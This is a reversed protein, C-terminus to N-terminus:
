KTPPQILKLEFIELGKTTVEYECEVQVPFKANKFTEFNNSKGWPAEVVDFGKNTEARARPFPLMVMLKTHDFDLGEVKGKFQKVGVLTLNGQM